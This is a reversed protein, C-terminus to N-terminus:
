ATVHQLAQLPEADVTDPLTVTRYGSLRLYRNGRTDVVEADFKEGSADPTVVAFLYVVGTMRANPNRLAKANWEMM